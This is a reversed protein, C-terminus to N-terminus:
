DDAEEATLAVVSEAMTRPQVPITAPVGHFPEGYGQATLTWEATLETVDPESLILVIDARPSEWRPHPRLHKLDITIVATGNKNEWSLPYGLPRMTRLYSTDLGGSFPQSTRFLPPLVKDLDFCEPGLWAVARAGQVAIVVQVDNLMAPTNSTLSFRLAPAAIAALHEECKAWNKRVKAKWRDIREELQEGTPISPSTGSRPYQSFFIQGFRSETESTEVAHERAKAARSDLYRERIVSGDTFYTAFGDIELEVAIDPQREDIGLFQRRISEMDPQDLISTIRELHYIEVDVDGGLKQLDCREALKLEQNTVFALGDPTHRKAADLDSILKGRIESLLQQGRPFYVAMIWRQNNRTCLADRGGDPGGLPHSPDIDEFGVAYLIQAALRESPGQGNTWGLLRHWTEDWREM